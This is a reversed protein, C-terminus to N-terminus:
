APLAGGKLRKGSEIQDKAVLKLRKLRQLVFLDPLPRRMEAAIEVELDRHRKLLEDLPPRHPTHQM